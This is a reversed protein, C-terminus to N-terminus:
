IIQYSYKKAFAEAQDKYTDGHMEKSFERVVVDNNTVQVVKYVANVVKTIAKKVKTPAKKKEMSLNYM